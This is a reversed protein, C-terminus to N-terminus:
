TNYCANMLKIVIIITPLPDRCIVLIEECGQRMKEGIIEFAIINIFQARHYRIENRPLLIEILIQVM